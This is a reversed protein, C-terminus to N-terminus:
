PGNDIKLGAQWGHRGAAFVAESPLGYRLGGCASLVKRKRKGCPAVVPLWGGAPCEPTTRVAFRVTMM